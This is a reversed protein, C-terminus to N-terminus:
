LKVDDSIGYHLQEINAVNTGSFISVLVEKDRDRLFGYHNFPDPIDISFPDADGDMATEISYASVAQVPFEKYAKGSARVKLIAKVRRM